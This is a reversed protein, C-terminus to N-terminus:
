KRKPSEKRKTEDMGRKQIKILRNKIKVTWKKIQMNERKEPQNKPKLPKPIRRISPQFEFPKYSLADPHM